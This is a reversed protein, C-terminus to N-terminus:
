FRKREFISDDLLTGLTGDDNINRVYVRSGSSVYDYTHVQGDKFKFTLINHKHELHEVEIVKIAEHVKERIAEDSLDEMINGVRYIQMEEDTQSLYSEIQANEAKIDMAQNELRKIERECEDIVKDLKDMTFYKPRRINIDIAQDIAKKQGEIQQDIVELTKANEKLKAEHSDAMNPINKIFRLTHWIKAEHFAFSDMINISLYVNPGEAYKTSYGGTTKQPIFHQGNSKEILLGSCYYVNKSRHTQANEKIKVQVANFVEDTVLRPFKNKGIYATDQLRKRLDNSQHRYKVPKYIGCEVLYQHIKYMQVGDLLMQFMKRVLDGNQPHEIFHGDQDTAYGFKVVGGNFKGEAKNRAKARAFREKKIDMEQRALTILLSMTIEAGNNVTGDDNYLKINPTKCILQVSHKMFFDKMKYFALEVRALRSIEWVYVCKVSQDDELTSILKEVEKMYLDNQKIASAGAEGLRIICDKTYGDAHAMATLEKDQSDIEQRDTSGRRWLICKKTEM